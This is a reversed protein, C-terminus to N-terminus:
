RKKADERASKLEAITKNSKDVYEQHLKRLDKNEQRLRELEGVAFPDQHIAPLPAGNRKARVLDLLINLDVIEM